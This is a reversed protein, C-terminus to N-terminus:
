AEARAAAEGDPTGGAEQRVVAVGTRAPAKRVYRTVSWGLAYLLAPMIFLLLLVLLLLVVCSEMREPVPLALM